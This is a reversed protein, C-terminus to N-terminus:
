YHTIASSGNDHLILGLGHKDTSRIGGMYM